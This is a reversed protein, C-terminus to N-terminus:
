TSVVNVRVHMAFIVALKVFHRKCFLFIGDPETKIVTQFEGLIFTSNTEEGDGGEGSIKTEGVQHM